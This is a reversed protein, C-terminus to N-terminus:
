PINFTWPKQVNDALPRPGEYPIFKKNHKIAVKLEFPIPTLEPTNMTTSKYSIIGLTLLEKQFLFVKKM